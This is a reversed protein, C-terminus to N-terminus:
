DTERKFVQDRYNRWASLGKAPDDVKELFDGTSSDIASWSQQKCLEVILAVIEDSARVHMMFGQLPEKGGNNFEISGFESEFHGWAPDSWDTGVFVKSIASHVFERTGLAVGTEDEAIDSVSQYPRSFKTVYVDWSM